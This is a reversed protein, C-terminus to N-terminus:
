IGESPANSRCKKVFQIFAATVPSFVQHEKWILMTGMNFRQALPVIRLGDYRGDLRLGVGVGMGSRVLIAGNYLLNYTCAVDMDAACDGFWSTLANQASESKSVILPYGALDEPRVSEKSALPSDDRVLVGWEETREMRVFEYTRVDVPESVLGIDLEGAEIRRKIGATNGSHMDFAVLPYKRRFATMIEALEGMSLFEGCGIAVEGALSDEEHSIEKVTKDALALLEQARRKLLVGEDTLVINHSSRTFLKVGLERELQALQRSLTPQTVHLQQAARTINEERAVMLFYQLVRLEM